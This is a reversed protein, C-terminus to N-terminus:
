AARHQNVTNRVPRQAPDMFRPMIVKPVGGDAIVKILGAHVDHHHKECLMAGWYVSTVGGESWLWIHHINCSEPDRTCGPVICGGDRVTIALRMPATHFRVARGMDLVQSKGGLVLPIIKAEALTRRLQAASLEHGHLTIGHTAAREELEALTLTVVVQPAVTAVGSAADAAQAEPPPLQGEAGALKRLRQSNIRLFGLLANLRRLAVSPEPAPDPETHAAAEEDTVFDPHDPIPSASEQRGFSGFVVNAQGERACQGAQTRPNDAQAVISDFLEAGLPDLLLEIRTLGRRTGRRFLGALAAPDEEEAQTRAQKFIKNVRRQRTTSQPEDLADDVLQELLAGSPDQASCAAPAAFEPVPEEFKELRRAASLVERPHQDPDAFRAALRTFQPPYQQHQYDFQAIVHHADALRRRAEFFDLDLWAATLEEPSNFSPRGQCLQPPLALDPDTERLADLELVSLGHAASAEILHAAHVQARVSEDATEEASAALALAFRPDAFSSQGGATRLRRLLTPILAAVALADGADLGPQDMRRSLDELVQTLPTSM